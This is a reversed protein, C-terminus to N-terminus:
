GAVHQRNQQFLRIAPCPDRVEGGPPKTHTQSQVKYVDTLIGSHFSVGAFLLDPVPPCGNVNVLRDPQITIKKHTAGLATTFDARMTGAAIGRLARMKLVTLSM